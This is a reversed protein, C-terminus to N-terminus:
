CMAPPTSADDHSPRSKQGDRVDAHAAQGELRNSKCRERRTLPRAMVISRIRKVCLLRWTQKGAPRNGVWVENESPWAENSPLTWAAAAAPQRTMTEVSWRVRGALMSKLALYLNDLAVQRCMTQSKLIGALKGHLDRRLELKDIAKFAIPVFAALRQTSRQDRAGDHAQAAYMPNAVRAINRCASRARRPCLVDSAGIRGVRAAAPDVVIGVQM